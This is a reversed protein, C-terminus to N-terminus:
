MPPNDNEAAVPAGAGLLPRTPNTVRACINAGEAVLAADSVMEGTKIVWGYWSGKENREPGTSVLYKHSFMPPTRRNPGVKLGSMLNLWFRAHKLQTSTMGIVALLPETERPLLGFFYATDSVVNGNRLVNQGKDNKSVVEELISSDRHSKVIGGGSERPKWEVYMKDYGCPIFVLEKGGQMHLVERTLTNFIDGINCDKIKKAEYDKHTKDFEPSGKQVIALFPIGLDERSVREFGTPQDNYQSWDIGPPPTQPAEKGKTQKM